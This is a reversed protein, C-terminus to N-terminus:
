LKGVDVAFSTKCGCSSVANPNDVVFMAGMMDNQFRVTSNKLYLASTADIVVADGFVIDDPDIADEAEMRYQFGSCGGGEVAVRLMTKEGFGATKARRLAAIREFAGPDIVIGHTDSM